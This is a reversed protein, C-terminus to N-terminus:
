GGGGAQKRGFLALVVRVLPLLVLILGLCGLLIVILIWGLGFYPEVADWIAPWGLVTVWTAVCLFPGYAIEREGLALYRIVGFALGVFPAVFFVVVTAQWGLFAGIMAMLTVDGFGMAERRLVATGLVRVIWIMGGGILIGALSTSLGTWRIGGLRWVGVIAVAGVVAMLVIAYTQWQRMMRATFVRAARAYGHRTYWRGPLLAACWAWYVAIGALMASTGTWRSSTWPMYDVPATHWVATAIPQEFPGLTWDPLLAYPWVVAMLLGALTGPITIGDPITMEDVDIWFAALTCCFLVLHSLFQEHRLMSFAMARPQLVGLPTLLPVPGDPTLLHDKLLGAQGVEWGYLMAAAVGVTLELLMPRVWFGDGHLHAERSLGLWGFVPLRDWLSRPPADPHPRTWPGIPRPTWALRYIAWNIASGACCGLVFLL